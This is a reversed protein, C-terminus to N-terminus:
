KVLGKVLDGLTPNDIHSVGDLSRLRSKAQYLVGPSIFLRRVRKPKTPDSNDMVMRYFGVLDVFGQVDNGLQGPFNPSYAVRKMEDEKTKQSSVFICHIPLDRFARVLMRIMDGGQGWEKFQAAEPVDDLKTTQPDINLLQYMVYKQIESLSDIIITQYLRLDEKKEPKVGTFRHQLEALKKYDQADRLRVHLKLFEYVRAMQKFNTIPIVDMDKDSLTMDGSEASIMLVDRMAPVDVATGTLFTKGIGYDGYILAKLYRTRNATNQIRFSGLNPNVAGGPQNNVAVVPTATVPAPVDAPAEEVKPAVELSLGLGDPDMEVAPAPVEVEPNPIQQETVVVVEVEKEAVAEVPEVIQQQVSTKPAM